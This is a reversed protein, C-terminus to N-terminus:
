ARVAVDVTKNSAYDGDLSISGDPLQLVFGLQQVKAIAVQDVRLELSLAQREGEICLKLGQIMGTVERLSPNYDTREGTEADYIGEDMRSEERELLRQAFSRANRWCLLHESATAQWKRSLAAADTPIPTARKKPTKKPPKQPL